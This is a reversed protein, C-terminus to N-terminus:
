KQTPYFSYPLHKYKFYSRWIVKDFSYLYKFDYQYYRFQKKYRSLVRAYSNTLFLYCIITHKFQKGNSFQQCGGVKLKRRYMRHMAKKQPFETFINILAGAYVMNYNSNRRKGVWLVVQERPYTKVAGQFRFYFYILFIFSFLNQNPM